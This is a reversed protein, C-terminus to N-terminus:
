KAETKLSDLWEHIYNTVAEQDVIKSLERFSKAVKDRTEKSDFNFTINLQTDPIKANLKNQRNSFYEELLGTLLLATSVLCGTSFSVSLSPSTQGVFLGVSLMIIATVFYRPTDM